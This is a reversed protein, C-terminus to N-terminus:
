SAIKDVYGYNHRARASTEYWQRRPWPETPSSKRYASAAYKNARLRHGTAAKWASTSTSIRCSVREPNLFREFLLDHEIPDLDTIGLRLCGAFGRRLRPGGSPCATTARGGFSDAVILFYGRIGDLL